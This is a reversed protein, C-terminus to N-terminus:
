PKVERKIADIAEQAYVDAWAASRAAGAAAAAAAWAEGTAVVGDIAAGVAAEAASGVPAAWWAARAARYTREKCMVRWAKAYGRKPKHAEFAAWM